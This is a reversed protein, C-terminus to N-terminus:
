AQAQMYLALNWPENFMLYTYSLLTEGGEGGVGDLEDWTDAFKSM